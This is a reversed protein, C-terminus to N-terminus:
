SGAATSVYKSVADIQGADLSASFSPMGNGGNTVITKVSAVSPKLEDLNPGVAGAAGADALTHCSACNATFLQKGEAEGGGGSGASKEKTATDGTSDSSSSSDDSSGGCAVLGLTALVLLTTGFIKM